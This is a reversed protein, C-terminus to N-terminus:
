EESKKPKLSKRTGKKYKRQFKMTWAEAFAHVRTNVWLSVVKELLEVSYTEYEPPISSAISEWVRLVPVAKVADGIIESCIDRNELSYSKM